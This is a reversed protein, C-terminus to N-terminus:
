DWDYSMADEYDIDHRKCWGKFDKVEGSAIVVDIYEETTLENIKRMQNVERKSIQNNQKKRIITYWV